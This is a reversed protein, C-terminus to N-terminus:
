NQREVNSKSVPRRTQVQRVEQVLVRVLVHLVLPPVVQQGHVELGDSGNQRGVDLREGNILQVALEPEVREVTVRVQQEGHWVHDVIDGGPQLGDGAFVVSRGGDLVQQDSHQVRGFALNVGDQRRRDPVDDVATVGFLVLVRVFNGTLNPHLVNLTALACEVLKYVLIVTIIIM